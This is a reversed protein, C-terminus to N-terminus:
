PLHELTETVEGGNVYLWITCFEGPCPTYGPPDTPWDGFAVPLITL